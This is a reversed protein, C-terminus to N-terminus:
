VEGDKKPTLGDFMVEHWALLEDLLEGMHEWAAKTDEVYSEPENGLGYEGPACIRHMDTWIEDFYRITRPM